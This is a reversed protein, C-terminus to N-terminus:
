NNLIRMAETGGNNGVQFIHDAGSTGNGSTPRYSLSQTTGSGGSILPVVISSSAISSANLTGGIGVGGAVTLAGTTTSTSTTTGTLALSTGSAIGITPTILSPSNSLVVSGTGTATNTGTGGNTISVINTTSNIIYIWATGSYYYLGSTGDTQYVMLGTAPNSIANRQASTM